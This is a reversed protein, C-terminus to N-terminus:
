KFGRLLTTIKDLESDSLWPGCPISVEEAHFSDVGPLNSRFDQFVTFRDNRPHVVNAGIGNVTLYDVLEDRRKCRLTYVWYGSEEGSRLAVPEFVGGWDINNEYYSGNSHYAAEIATIRGLMALGISAKLNNLDGKLGFNKVDAWAYGGSESILRKNVGFWKLQRAREAIDPSNTILCGGDGGSTIQKVAQFSFCAFDSNSGVRNGFESISGVAHACDEIIAINAPLERRLVEVDFPQGDKHLVIVASTKKSVLSLISEISQLGTLPDCDSWVPTAGVKLIQQNAAISTLPTTIIERGREAGSIILAIEIATSCSNVCVGHLNGIWGAFKDELQWTIDGEALMGTEVFTDIFEFDSAIINPKLLQIM